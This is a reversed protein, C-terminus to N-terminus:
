LFLDTRHVQTCLSIIQWLTQCLVCKEDVAMQSTAPTLKEGEMVDECGIIVPYCVKKKKM